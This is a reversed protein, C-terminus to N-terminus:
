RKEPPTNPESRQPTNSTKKAQHKAWEKKIMEDLKAQQEPTLVGNIEGKLRNRMERLRGHIEGDLTKMREDNQKFLERLKDRQEATLGLAKAVPELLPFPTREQPQRSFRKHMFYREGFIGGVVGLAFVVVLTLAIWLKYKKNM